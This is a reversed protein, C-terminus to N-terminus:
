RERGREQSSGRHRRRPVFLRRPAEGWEALLDVARLFDEARWVERILPVPRTNPLEYESYEFTLVRDPPPPVTLDQVDGRAWAGPVWGRPTLHWHTWDRSEAM